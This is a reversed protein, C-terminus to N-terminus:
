SVLFLWLLTPCFTFSFAVGLSFAGLFREQPLRSQMRSIVGRGLSGRLRLVGLLGLGIVVMLPGIIKRTVIVVPIANQQLRLGTLIVLGGTVSYVMLKAVAYALIESWMQRESTKRSIYAIASLNTTFQCPSIAGVFGLLFVTLPPFQAWDAAEKTPLSLTVSIQSLLLYWERM